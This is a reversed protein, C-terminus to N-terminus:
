KFNSIFPLQTVTAKLYSNDPLAIDVTVGKEKFERRIYCLAITKNLTPSYVSSTVRGIKKGDKFLESGPNLTNKVEDTELGVLHWNVKGRWKIRAVVEQGIYCGKEFDLANWLGAEIPITTEDM